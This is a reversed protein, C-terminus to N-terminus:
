LLMEMKLHQVLKYNLDTIAPNNELTELLKQCWQIKKAKNLVRDELLRHYQGLWRRVDESAEPFAQMFNIKPETIFALTQLFQDTKTLIKAAQNIAPHLATGAIEIRIPMDWIGDKFFRAAVLIGALSLTWTKFAKLRAFQVLGYDRLTYAAKRTNTCCRTAGTKTRAFDLVELDNSITKVFLEIISYVKAPRRTQLYLLFVLLKPQLHVATTGKRHPHMREFPTYELRGDKIELRGQVFERLSLQNDFCRQKIRIWEIAREIVDLHTHLRTRAKLLEGHDSFLRLQNKPPKPRAKQKGRIHIQNEIVDTLRAIIREDSKDDV